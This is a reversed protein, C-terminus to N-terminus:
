EFSDTVILTVIEHLDSGRYSSYEVRELSDCKMFGFDLMNSEEHYIVALWETVLTNCCPCPDQMDMLELCFVHIGESTYFHEVIELNLFDEDELLERFFRRLLSEGFLGLDSMEFEQWYLDLEDSLDQLYPTYKDMFQVEKEAIMDYAGEGMSINSVEKERITKKIRKM